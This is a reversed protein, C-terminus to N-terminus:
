RLDQACMHGHLRRCGGLLLSHILQGARAANHAPELVPGVDVRLDLVQRGAPTPEPM